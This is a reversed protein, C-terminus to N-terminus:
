GYRLLSAHLYVSTWKFLWLIRHSGLLKACYKLDIWSGILTSKLCKALSKFIKVHINPFWTVKFPSDDPHCWCGRSTVQLLLEPPRAIFLTELTYNLALFLFPSAYIEINWMWIGFLKLIYNQLFYLEDKCGDGCNFLAIKYTHLRKDVASDM